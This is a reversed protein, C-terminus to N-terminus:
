AAAENTPPYQIQVKGNALLGLDVCLLPFAVQEFFGKDNHSDSHINKPRDSWISITRSGIHGNEFTVQIKGSHQGSVQIDDQWQGDVYRREGPQEIIVQNGRAVNDLLEFITLAVNDFKEENEPATMMALIGAMQLQGATDIEDVFVSSDHTLRAWCGVDFRLSKLASIVGLRFDFGLPALDISSGYIVDDKVNGGTLSSPKFDMAEVAEYTAALGEVKIDLQEHTLQPM